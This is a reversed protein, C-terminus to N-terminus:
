WEFIDVIDQLANKVRDIIGQREIIKPVEPLLDVIDQGQPLRETYLYEGILAELKEVPIHESEALSSL